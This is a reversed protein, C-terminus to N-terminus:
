PRARLIADLKSQLRQEIVKGHTGKAMEAAAFIQLEHYAEEGQPATVKEWFTAVDHRPLQQVCRAVLQEAERGVEGGSPERGSLSRPTERFPTQAVHRDGRSPGDPRGIPITSDGKPDDAADVFPSRATARRAEYLSRATARQAEREAAMEAAVLKIKSALPSCDGIADFLVRYANPQMKGGGSVTAILGAAELRRCSRQVSRGTLDTVRALAEVSPWAFGQADNTYDILAALVLADAKTLAPNMIAAQLLWLRTITKRKAAAATSTDATM